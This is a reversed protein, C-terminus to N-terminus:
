EYYVYVRFTNPYSQVRVTNGSILELGNHNVIPLPNTHISDDMVYYDFRNGGPYTPRGFLPLKMDPKDPDYAIGVRRYEPTPAFSPVTFDPRQSYLRRPNNSLRNKVYFQQTPQMGAEYQSMEYNPYPQLLLSENFPAQTNSQFSDRFTVFMGYGILTLIVFVMIVFSGSKAAAACPKCSKVM